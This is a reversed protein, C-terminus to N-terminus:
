APFGLPSPPVSGLEFYLLHDEMLIRELSLMRLIKDDWHVM